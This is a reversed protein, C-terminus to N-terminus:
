TISSISSLCSITRGRKKEREKILELLQQHEVPTITEAQLKQYLKNYTQQITEKLLPQNIRLLLGTEKESLTKTKRKALLHAVEQLFQELEATELTAIGALIDAMGIKIAPKIEISPM